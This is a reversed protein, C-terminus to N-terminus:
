KNLVEGTFSIGSGQNGVWRKNFTKKDAAFILLDYDNSGPWILIVRSEDIATWIIRAGTNSYVAIGDDNFTLTHPPEFTVKKGTLFKTLAERGKIPVLGSPSSPPSASVKKADLNSKLDKQERLLERVADFNKSERYKKLSDGIAQLLALDANRVATKFSDVSSKMQKSNPLLGQSTFASREAQLVDLQKLQDEIDIQNNEQVKAITNDFAITLDKVANAKEAKNKERSANLEALISDAKDIQGLVPIETIAFHFVIAAFALLIRM